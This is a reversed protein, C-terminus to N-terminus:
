PPSQQDDCDDEIECLPCLWDGLVPGAFGVCDTHVPLNCSDCLLILGEDDRGDRRNRRWCSDPWAHRVSRRFSAFPIQIRAAHDDGKLM